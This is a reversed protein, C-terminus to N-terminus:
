LRSVLSPPRSATRASSSTTGAASARCSWSRTRSSSRSSPLFVISTSIRLSASSSARDFSAIPRDLKTGFDNTQKAAEGRHFGNGLRQLNGAGVDGLPHLAHTGPPSRLDSFTVQFESGLDAAQDILLGGVAVSPDGREEPALSGTVSRPDIVLTNAAQHLLMAQQGGPMGATTALLSVVALYGAQV